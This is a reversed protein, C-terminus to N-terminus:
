TTSAHQASRDLLARVQELLARSVYPKPLYAAHRSLHRADLREQTYGSVFLVPLSTWRLKLREALEPGSRGPMVVDTVLLDIQADEAAVLSEADEASAAVLVRYGANRLVRQGFARVVDEDEVFLIREHGGRAPLEDLSAQAADHESVAPLLVTFTTGSGPISRVSIDGAAQRVIGYVTALGLGTGKGLEKTTYFPEFIRAAVEASMGVGTDSTEIVVFPGPPLDRAAAAAANLQETRMRVALTGGDPMADRANAALNLLIQEFQTPDIRVFGSAPSADVELRIDEGLLRSLFRQTEHLQRGVDVTRPIVVQRRAFTLLQATLERARLGARRIEGVDDAARSDAPLEHMLEEAYGLIATLLNNFDHAIGGALRGLSELKQTEHLREEATRLRDTAEHLETIDQFAGFVKVVVGDRWEAEGQARAWLRRGSASIFPLELLFPEGHAILREVAAAIVPRAEPAYFDIAHALDPTYDTPVEHILKVEDDWTLTQAAVDIEWGGLKALHKARRLQGERERLAREAALRATIDSFSGMFGIPTGGDGLIVSAALEVDFTSGDRRRAVLNGTVDSEGQNLRALVGAAAERDAWFDVASRGECEAASDYGWMRLFAANVYTLLGDSDALTMANHAGAIAQALMRRSQEGRRRETADRVITLIRKEAGNTTVLRASAEIWRASGDAHRIALTVPPVQEGNIARGLAEYVQLREAPQFLGIEGLRHGEFASIPLGLIREIAANAQAIRGDAELVLVADPLAQVLEAYRAETDLQATRSQELKRATDALRTDAETMSHRLRDLFRSLLAVLIGLFTFQAIVVILNGRQSISRPEFMPVDVVGSVAVVLAISLAILPIGIRAGGWLAILITAITLAPMATATLGYVAVTLAACIWLTGMAMSAGARLRGRAVIITATASGLTCLGLIVWDIPNLTVVLLLVATFTAATATALASLLFTIRQADSGASGLRDVIGRLGEAPTSRM